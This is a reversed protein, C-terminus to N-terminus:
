ARLFLSPEHWYKNAACHCFLATKAYICPLNPVAHTQLCYNHIGTLSQAMQEKHNICLITNYMESNGICCSCTMESSLSYAMHGGDGESEDTRATTSKRWAQLLINSRLISFSCAKVLDVSQGNSSLMLCPLYKMSHSLSCRLFTLPTMPSITFIICTFWHHQFTM